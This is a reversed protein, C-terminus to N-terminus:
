CQHWGGDAWVGPATLLVSVREDCDPPDLVVGMRVSAFTPPHDVCLTGLIPNLYVPVPAVAGTAIPHAEHLLAAHAELLATRWTSADYATDFQLGFPSSDAPAM